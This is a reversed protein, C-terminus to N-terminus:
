ASMPKWPRFANDVDIFPALDPYHRLLVSAFTNDNLWDMGLETYTDANYDDTFFRDSKLRRSAMLVFVRFATDSFGFGAPLREGYMGVMADVRDVTGYVDRLQRAWERNDTIDEFTRAPQLHLLERFKNYRPVGRERNRLIDIAALDITTYEAEKGNEARKTAKRFHQLHRPFNHLTIAGPHSLGLSYLINPMGLEEVRQQTSLVDLEALTYKGLDEGTPVRWFSFDDPVLPHMRYVAVFEETLSYDVGHHSKASGPIGSVFDSSSIRGCAKYVREGAIGWWNIRMGLQTTPHAIIAPTWEVTHIKAMLAANILRAKNYLQDDSYSPYARALAEAIANHELMFVTHLAALGVWLNAQPSSLDINDVIDFPPLGNEMRLRGGQHERLADVAQPTSGYVQSGDWWHTDDTTFTPPLGEDAPTRSRDPRTREILMQKGPWPDDAAIPIKWPDDQQNKGHSFWDHVEFQIWAAALVNLTTAPIFCDRTLLERSVVRPSPELMQSDPEPHAHEPPVNRGFRCGLSGMAPKDLDNYTGDVTRVGTDTPPSGIPGQRLKPGESGMDVLNEARLRDRIGILTLIGLPRPLKHWGVYRDLMATICILGKSLLSRAM